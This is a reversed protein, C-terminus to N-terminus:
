KLGLKKYESEAKKVVKKLKKVDGELDGALALSDEYHLISGMIGNVEDIIEELDSELESMKEYDDKKEAKKYDKLILNFDETLSKIEYAGSESHYEYNNFMSETDEAVDLYHRADKEYKQFKNLVDRPLKAKEIKQVYKSLDDIDHQMSNIYNKEKRHIKKADREHAKAERLDGKLQNQAQSVNLYDKVAVRKGDMVSRVEKRILKRLNNM